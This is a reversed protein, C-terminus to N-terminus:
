ARMLNLDAALRANERFGPLAHEDRRRHYADLAAPEDTRGSLVDDIAEALFTAHTSANDMGEGTWPDLYLSADGVLAWGPGFPVRAEAPRPGCAWLRGVWTAREARPALFPHAAIREAFAADARTKLRHYDALNLSVAVCALGGDSPFVYVLEDDALSFEPGDPDGEPGELGEAYRYYMARLPPASEQIPADVARAVRSAHGDAGVVLRARVPTTGDGEGDSLEAGVVRDDDRLPAVFRTSERVEVSPERRAREVLMADLTERRVSLNFPIDSPDQPPDIMVKGTLVDANYERVLKPAGTALVEDLMGLRQLARGCWAGRFFHTSLTASPFTARDIALVRRGREGLLAALTSGAVRAGVVLVDVEESHRV